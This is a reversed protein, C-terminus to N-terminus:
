SINVAYKLANTIMDDSHDAPYWQFMNLQWWYNVEWGLRPLTNQVLITQKEFVDKWVERPGILFGGLYRWRIYDLFHAWTNLSYDLEMDNDTWSGPALISAPWNCKAITQLVVTTIVPNKFVRFIGSDIWALHTTTTFKAADSLCWAKQLQIAFYEKTDKEKNYKFPMHVNEPIWSTDLTVYEPIQLNPYQECWATGKEKLVADLYCILPIGTQILSELRELYIELSQYKYGPLVYFATVYTLPM